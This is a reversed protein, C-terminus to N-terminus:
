YSNSYDYDDDDYGSGSSSGDYGDYGSDYGDYGSDYGDSGSDDRDDGDRDPGEDEEDRYGEDRDDSDDSPGMADRGYAKGRKGRACLHTLHCQATIRQKGPPKLFPYSPFHSPQFTSSHEPEFDV